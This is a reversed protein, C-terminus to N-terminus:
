QKRILESLREMMLRIQGLGEATSMNVSYRVSRGNGTTQLIGKERLAKLAVKIRYESYRNGIVSEIDSKSLNGTHLLVSLIDRETDTLDPYSGPLDVLYITLITKELSTEIQPARLLSSTASKFILYGGYGQRESLGMRRFVSMILDNRPRTSGGRFFTEADILMKGPNEFRYYTDFVEIKLGTNPMSYDAHVITNVLAERLAAKMDTNVRVMNEDLRFGTKSTSILKQYVISRDGGRKEIVMEMALRYAEDFDKELEAKKNLFKEKVELLKKEKLVRAEKEAESVMENYKGKLVYRFLVFGIIGGILLGTVLCIIYVM